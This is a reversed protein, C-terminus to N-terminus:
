EYSKKLMERLDAYEQKGAKTRRDFKKSVAYNQSFLEPEMIYEHTASGVAFHREISDDSKKNKEYFYRRPSKLFNKLDSASIRDKKGLYEAFTDKVYDIKIEKKVKCEKNTKM